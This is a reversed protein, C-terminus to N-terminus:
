AMNRYNHLKLIPLLISCTISPFLISCTPWQLWQKINSFLRTFKFIIIAQHAYLLLWLASLSLRLLWSCSLTWFTAWKLGQLENLDKYSMEVLLQGVQLPSLTSCTLWIIIILYVQIILIHLMEVLQGLMNKHAAKWEM